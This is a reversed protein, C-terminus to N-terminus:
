PQFGEQLPMGTKLYNSFGASGSLRNFSHLSEM